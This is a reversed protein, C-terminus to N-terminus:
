CRIKDRNLRISEQIDEYHKCDSNSNTTKFCSRKVLNNNKCYTFFRCKEFTVRHIKYKKYTIM